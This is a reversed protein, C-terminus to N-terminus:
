ELAEIIEVLLEKKELTLRYKANIKLVEKKYSLMLHNIIIM